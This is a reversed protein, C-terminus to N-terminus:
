FAFVIFNSFFCLLSDNGCTVKTLINSAKLKVQQRELEEVKQPSVMEQQQYQKRELEVTKRMAQERETEANRLRERLLELERSQLAFRTDLSTLRRDFDSPTVLIFLDFSVDPM